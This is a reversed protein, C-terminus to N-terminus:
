EAGNITDIDEPLVVLIEANIFGSVDRTVIADVGNV